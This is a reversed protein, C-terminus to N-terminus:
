SRLQKFLNRFGRALSSLPNANFSENRLPDVAPRQSRIVDPSNPAVADSFIIGDLFFHSNSKGKMLYMEYDTMKFSEFESINKRSNM